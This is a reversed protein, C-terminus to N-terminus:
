AISWENKCIAGTEFQYRKTQPTRQSGESNVKGELLCINYYTVIQIEWLNGRETEISNLTESSRGSTHLDDGRTEGVRVTLTGTAEVNANLRLHLPLGADPQQHNFFTSFGQANCWNPLLGM